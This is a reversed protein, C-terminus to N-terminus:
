EEPQILFLTQGYEVPLGDEILVDSIVGNAPSTVEIVLNVAAIAGIVQGERVHAGLGVVPKVHRFFGVLPATVTVTRGADEEAPAASGNEAYAAEAEIALAAGNSEGRVSVLARGPSAGAAPPAKRITIREGGQRLTLESINAQQVLAVLRELESVDM